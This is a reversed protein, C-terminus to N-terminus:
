SSKYLVLPPRFVNFYHLLISPYPHIHSLVPIVLHFASKRLVSFYFPNTNIKSKIKKEQLIHQLSSNDITCLLCSLLNVKKHPFQEPFTIFDCNVTTM